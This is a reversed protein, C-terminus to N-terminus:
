LSKWHDEWKEPGWQLVDDQSPIVRDRAYQGACFFYTEGTYKAKDEPVQLAADVSDFGAKTLGPWKKAIEDPGWEIKDKDLNIKVYNKGSFLYAQGPVGPVAVAAGVREITTGALSKWKDLTKLPGDVITDGGAKPTFKIQVVELGRFFYLEDETGQVPLIADVTEFGAKALSKWHDKILAPGWTRTEESTYPEWKVRCYKEVSFFYAEGIDQQYFAADVM